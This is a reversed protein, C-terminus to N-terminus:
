QALLADFRYLFTVVEARTCIKRPSFTNASTGGTVGNEVAWRVAKAYYASAPVDQFPNDSEPEPSGATRWLFTVVQDRTCCNGVGFLTESIGNTIGNEQAWLVAEYYYKDPKIDVFSTSNTFPAPKGSAAWLFFVIQERTCPANPSFHTEDTGSTIRPDHYYAWLVADYYYKGETVDVFPNPGTLKPIVETRTAGCRLCTYLREGPAETTPELTVIGEDWNHDLADVPRTEFADCRSCTRTEEGAETCSPATTVTWDGYNHGLAPTEDATYSDGCRSCTYTTYGGATCTPETVVAQYDHGLVEVPRTEFADCRSCTRTEEGAETCSPATTVTWDGFDHGLAATANDQYSYACLTCTYTTYGGETCSPATVASNYACDATTENGCVSCAASHTGNGNPTWSDYSHNGTAPIVTSELTIEHECAEDSFYKDCGSCYYYATHGASACTPAVADVLVPIHTHVSAIPDTWYYTISDLEEKWLQTPHDDFDRCAGFFGYSSEALYPYSTCAVNAIKMCSKDAVYQVTWDASGTQYSSMNHLYENVIGIWYNTASKITYTGGNGALTFVYDSAANRLLEGDLTMGTNQYDVSAGLPKSELDQDGEVGKFAVLYQDTGSTILYRGSWDAPAEKVLRYVATAGGDVRSFVAYLTINKPVTYSSGPAYLTGPADTSEAEMQADTWGCFTWGEPAVSVTSPLTISDFILASQSGEYTGSAVFNVTCSAKPAFIVRITCDTQADVTITNFDIVATATGSVVEYDAAYYGEAPYATITSGEVSVTGWAENNSLATVACLADDTYAKIRYDGNDPCDTWAGNPEKYFSTAGHNAHIWSCWDIIGSNNFTADYPTHVGGYVVSQTIVVSFSDGAYLPVPTDLSITYYGAFALSGSQTAALTGSAPDGETPNKYIEVTYNLGEDFSCLSIAKLDERGQVTFVNAVKTNNVFGEYYGISNNWGKGYSVLNCTGDYQYNHSYNDVPQADYFFIYGETVSTDEYSIYCYGGDFMGTGWSNKCIWAGSGAPRNPSFSSPQISDDWGIVTISHNATKHGSSDQSSYDINCIYSNYDDDEYYSINGAGYAMIANKVAEVDSGPIWESNQVHCVDYQYAYRSDLGSYNVAAANSYHLADEMEDAAGEWRMLTFASMQGNGGQDLCPDDPISRDGTLMGEADYAYTYNFFAHQSESLNLSTTAPSDTGVPVEHSIMYSEISAMAAHAWCSGYPNQNKVSTVWGNDRADYSAPLPDKTGGSGVYREYTERDGSLYAETVAKGGPINVPIYSNSRASPKPEEAAKEGAEAGLVATPFLSLIMLVSLLIALLKKM